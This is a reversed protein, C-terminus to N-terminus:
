VVCLFFLFSFFSFLLHPHNFLFPPYFPPLLRVMSNVAPTFMKAMWYVMMIASLPTEFQGNLKYQFYGMWTRGESSLSSSSSSGYANAIKQNLDFEDVEWDNSQFRKLAELRNKEVM